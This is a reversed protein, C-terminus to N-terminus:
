GRYLLALLGAFVITATFDIAFRAPNGILSGASYGLANSGLWAGCVVAGGGIM